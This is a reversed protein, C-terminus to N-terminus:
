IQRPRGAVGGPASPPPWVIHPCARGGNRCNLGTDGQDQVGSEVQEGVGHRFSAGRCAPHAAGHEGPLEGRWQGSGGAAAVLLFPKGALRSHEGATAECRRLRDTFAKASESMEGWYVPTVLVVADAACIDRHVAQFGDAVQCEHTKNCTGWGDNCARCNGVGADNIRIERADVGSSRAGELASQACAATLGDKNPSSSLVIIQM